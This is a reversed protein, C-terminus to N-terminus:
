PTSPVTCPFINKICSAAFRTAASAFARSRPWTRQWARRRGPPFATAWPKRTPKFRRLWFNESRLRLKAPVGRRNAPSCPPLPGRAISDGFANLPKPVAVLSSPSEQSRIVATPCCSSRAIAFSTPLSPQTAYNTLNTSSAILLDSETGWSLRRAAAQCSDTYFFWPARIPYSM